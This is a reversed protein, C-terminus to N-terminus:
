RSNCITQPLEARTLMNCHTQPPRTASDAGESNATATASSRATENRGSCSSLLYNSAFAHRGRASRVHPHALSGHQAGALREKTRCTNHMCKFRKRHPARVFDFIVVATCNGRRPSFMRGNRASSCGGTSSASGVSSATLTTAPSPFAGIDAGTSGTASAPDAGGVEETGRAPGGAARAAVEEIAAPPVIDVADVDKDGPACSLGCVKNTVSDCAASDDQLVVSVLM